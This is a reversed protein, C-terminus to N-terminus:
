RTKYLYRRGLFLVCFIFSVLSISPLKGPWATWTIWGSFGMFTLHFINLVIGAAVLKHILRLDCEVKNLLSPFSNFAALGLFGLSLVGSLISIGGILNYQGLSDFFKEYYSPYLLTLSLLCHIIAIYFGLLGIQKRPKSKAACFSYGILITATMAFAKNTVWLPLNKWPVEKFINYRIIAYLLSPIFATIFYKKM